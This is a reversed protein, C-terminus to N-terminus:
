IVGRIEKKLLTIGRTISNYDRDATHTILRGVKSKISENVIANKFDNLKAMEISPRGRALRVHTMYLGKNNTNKM